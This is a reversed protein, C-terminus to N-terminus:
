ISGFIFGLYFWVSNMISGVYLCLLVLVLVLVLGLYFGFRVWVFGFMSDLISDLMFGLYFEILVWIFVSYFFFLYVGFLFCISGFYFGVLLCISLLHCWISGFLVWILGLCFGVYLM